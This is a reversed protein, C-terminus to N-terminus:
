VHVRIIYTDGIKHALYTSRINSNDFIEDYEDTRDANITESPSRRRRYSRNEILSITTMIETTRTMRIDDFWKCRLEISLNMIWIQTTLSVARQVM